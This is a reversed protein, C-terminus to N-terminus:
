RPVCTNRCHHLRRSLPLSSPHSSPLFCHLSSPLDLDVFRSLLSSPVPWPPLTFQDNGLRSAPMTVSGFLASALNVPPVLQDSSPSTQDVLDVFHRGPFGPQSAQDTDESGRPGLGARTGWGRAALGFVGVGGSLSRCSRLQPRPTAETRYAHVAKDATRTNM